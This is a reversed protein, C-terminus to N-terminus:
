SLRGAAGVMSIVGENRDNTHLGTSADGGDGDSAGHMDM